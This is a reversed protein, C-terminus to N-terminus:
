YKGEINAIKKIIFSTAMYQEVVFHYGHILKLLKHQNATCHLSVMRLPTPHQIVYQNKVGYEVILTKFILVKSMM